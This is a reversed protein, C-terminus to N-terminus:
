WHWEDTTSRTNVTHDLETASSCGEVKTTESSLNGSWEDSCIACSALIIVGSVM